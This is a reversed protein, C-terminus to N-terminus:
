WLDVSFYQKVKPNSVKLSRINKNLKKLLDWEEDFSSEDVKIYVVLQNLSDFEPDPVFELCYDHNPFYYKLLTNVKKILEILDINDRVFKFIYIPNILNFEILINLQFQNIFFHLYRSMIEYTNHIESSEYFDYNNFTDLIRNNNFEEISVNFSM